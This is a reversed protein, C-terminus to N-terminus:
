QAAFSGVATTGGGTVRWTGAAEDANTGYFAGTLAGSLAGGSLSTTFDNGVIAGSGTLNPLAGSINNTNLTSINSVTSTVDHGAFDADIRVSGRLAFLETGTAGAGITYGTYSASGSTPVNALPTENGGAFTGIELDDGAENLLWAGFLSSNLADIAFGSSGNSGARVLSITDAMTELTINSPQRGSFTETFVVGGSSINLEVVSIFGEADTTLTVTSGQGTPDIGGGDIGTAGDFTAGASSVEYTHETSAGQINSELFGDLASGDGGGCAGLLGLMLIAVTRM